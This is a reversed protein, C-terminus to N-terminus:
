LKLSRLANEVDSLRTASQGRATLDAAYKEMTRTGNVVAIVGLMVDVVAKPDNLIIVREGVVPAWSEEVEQNMRDLPAYFTDTCMKRIFYVNYKQRLLRFIEKAPMDEHELGLHQRIISGQLLAPISEDGTIFFFGKGRVTTKLAYYAACLDYSEVRNGGGSRIHILGYPPHNAERLWLKGMHTDIDGGQAFPTVQLAGSTDVLADGIAAFSIAPDHLYGQMQLQGFFMPLKDYIIKSWTGMSGTMDLAVVVANEHTCVMDQHCSLDPHVSTRRATQHFFEVSQSSYSAAPTAAASSSSATTTTVTSPTASPASYVERDYYSGGM